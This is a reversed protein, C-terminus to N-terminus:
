VTLDGPEPLVFSWRLDPGAVADLFREADFAEGPGMAGSPLDPRERQRALLIAARALLRASIAAPDGGECAVFAGPGQGTAEAVVRFRHPLPLVMSAVVEAAPAHRPLLVEELLPSLVRGLGLVPGAADDVHVEIRDLPGGYHEAAVAAVLDCLLGEIGCAPVVPVPADAHRRLVQGVFAADTAADVYPVRAAVAAGVALRNPVVDVVALLGGLSGLTAPRCDAGQAALAGLALGGLSTDAGLVGIM